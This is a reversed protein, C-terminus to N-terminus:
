FQKTNWLNDQKRHQKTIWRQRNDVIFRELWKELITKEPIYFTLLDEKENFVWNKIVSYPIFLKEGEIIFCETKSTSLESKYWSFHLKIKIYNKPIKQPKPIQRNTSEKNEDDDFLAQLLKSTPM